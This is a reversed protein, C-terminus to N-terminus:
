GLWCRGSALQTSNEWTGEYSYIAEADAAFRGVQNELPIRAMAPPWREKQEQSGCLYISGMALGSQVGLFTAIPADIRSVEMAVM